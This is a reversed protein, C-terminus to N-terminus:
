ECGLHNSAATAGRPSLPATILTQGLLSRIASKMKAGGLNIKASERVVNRFNPHKTASLATDTQALLSDVSGAEYLYVGPLGLVEKPITSSDSIVVCSGCLLAEVLNTYGTPRKDAPILPIWTVRSRHLTTILETASGIDIIEGRSGISSPRIREATKRSLCYRHNCKRLGEEAIRVDRDTVGFLAVDYISEEGDLQYFGPEGGWIQLSCPTKLTNTMAKLAPETMCFVHHCLALSASWRSVEEATWVWTIIETRPFITKLFPIATMLDPQTVLYITKFGAAVDRMVSAVIPIDLGNIYSRFVIEWRNRRHCYVKDADTPEYGWFHLPSFKGGKFLERTALLTSNIYIIGM